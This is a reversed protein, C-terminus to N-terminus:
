TKMVIGREKERLLSQVKHHLIHVTPVQHKLDLSRPLKVLVPCPEIRGLDDQGEQVEVVTPDDIPVAGVWGGVEM